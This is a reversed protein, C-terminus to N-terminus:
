CEFIEDDEILLKCREDLRTKGDKAGQIQKLPLDLIRNQLTM